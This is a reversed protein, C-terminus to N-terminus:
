ELIECTDTYQTNLVVFEVVLSSQNVSKATRKGEREM